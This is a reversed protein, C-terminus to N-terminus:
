AVHRGFQRSRDRRAKVPTRACTCTHRCGTIARSSASICARCSRIPYVSCASYHTLVDIYFGRTGGCQRARYDLPACSHKRPRAKLSERNGATLMFDSRHIEHKCLSEIVACRKPFEFGLRFTKLFKHQELYWSLWLSQFIRSTTNQSYTWDFQRLSFSSATNVFLFWALRIFKLPHHSLQWVGVSKIFYLFFSPNWM